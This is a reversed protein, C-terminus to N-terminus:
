KMKKKKASGVIIEQDAIDWHEQFDLNVKIVKVRCNKNNKALDEWVKVHNKNLKGTWVAWYILVYFDAKEVEKIPNGKLDRFKFLEVSLNSSDPQNYKTDVNLNPIFEFLGANCSTDSQRYEIYNGRSDYISADPISRGKLMKPYVRSYVTVINSTDMDNKLASKKIGKESELEPDKIGYMKKM